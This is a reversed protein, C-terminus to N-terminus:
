RQRTVSKDFTPSADVTRMTHAATPEESEVPGAM